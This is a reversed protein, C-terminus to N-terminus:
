PYVIVRNSGSLTNFYDLRSDIATVISAVNSSIEARIQAAAPPFTFTGINPNQMYITRYCILAALFYINESGHPASDGYVDSFELSSLYAENEFLWAIIPGVPITRLSRGNGIIANQLDVHWDLYGGMTANNYSTFTARSMNVGGAYFGGDPWHVYLFVESSPYVSLINDILTELAGQATTIPQTYPPGGMDEELFNSPMTLFHELSEGPFTDDPIPDFTNGILYKGSINVNPWPQANHNSFQGFTHAGGAATGSAQALLGYWEGTRTYSTAPADDGGDYTALSHGFIYFSSSNIPTQGSLGGPNRGDMVDAYALIPIIGGRSAM